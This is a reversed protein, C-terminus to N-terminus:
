GVIKSLFYSIYSLIKYSFDSIQDTISEPYFYRRKAKAKYAIHLRENLRTKAKMMIKDQAAEAQKAKLSISASNEKISSIEPAAEIISKLLQHMSEVDSKQVSEPVLEGKPTVNHKNRNPVNLTVINPTIHAESFPRADSSGGAIGSQIKLKLDKATNQLLDEALNRQNKSYNGYLCGKESINLILGSKYDVRPANSFTKELNYSKMSELNIIIDSDKLGLTNEKALAFSSNQAVEEYLTFVFIIQYNPNATTETLLSLM